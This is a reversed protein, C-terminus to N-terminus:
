TTAGYFERLRRAVRGDSLADTSDVLQDIAGTRPLERLAADEVTKFCARAFRGADLVRFPRGHFPRTTPDLEETLGLANHRAALSEAAEVWAAGREDYDDAALLRELPPGVDAAADLQAFASGLWKSYPAYRREFLLCLRM